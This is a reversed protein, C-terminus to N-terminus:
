LLLMNIKSYWNREWVVKKSCVTDGRSLIIDIMVMTISKVM